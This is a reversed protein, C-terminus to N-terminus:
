NFTDPNPLIMLFRHIIKVQHKISDKLLDYANVIIVYFDMLRSMKIEIGNVSFQEVETLKVTETNILSSKVYWNILRLRQILLLVLHGYYQNELVHMLFLIAFQILDKDHITFLTFAMIFATQLLNNVCCRTITPSSGVEKDFIKLENYFKELKKRTAFGFISYIIYQILKMCISIVNGKSFYIFYSLLGIISVSYLCTLTKFIVRKTNFVNVRNLGILLEFIIYIKSLVDISLNKNETYNNIHM